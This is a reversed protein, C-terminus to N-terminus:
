QFTCSSKIRLSKFNLDYDVALSFPIPILNRFIFLTLIFQNSNAALFILFM